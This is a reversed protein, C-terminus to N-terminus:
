WDGEGTTFGKQNFVTYYGAWECDQGDAWDAFCM